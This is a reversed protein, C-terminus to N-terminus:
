SREAQDLGTRVYRATGVSARKKLAPPSVLGEKTTSEETWWARVHWPPCEPLVPVGLLQTDLQRNMLKLLPDTEAWTMAPLAPPPPRQNQAWALKRWLREELSGWGPRHSSALSGDNDDGEWCIECRASCGLVWMTPPSEELLFSATTTPLALAGAGSILGQGPLKPSLPCTMEGRGGGSVTGQLDCTRGHPPPSAQM